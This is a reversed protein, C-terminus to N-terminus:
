AVFWVALLARVQASVARVVSRGRARSVDGLSSQRYLLEAASARYEGRATRGTRAKRQRKTGASAAAGAKACAPALGASGPHAFSGGTPILGMVMRKRLAHEALQALSARWCSTKM